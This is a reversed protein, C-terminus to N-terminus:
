TDTDSVHPKEKFYEPYLKNACEPCIGHSFEAESHTKIYWELQTWHDQDDRIKKCSACIPLLGHLIRIDELAKERERIANERKQEAIKRQLGLSATVWIAFLALSRNFLVKWMEAVAPKYFYAGITLMSCIVAIFVTMKNQPFWLSILVVAIYPVGMAVGLPISLDLILIMVMLLGCAIYLGFTSRVKNDLSDTATNDTM